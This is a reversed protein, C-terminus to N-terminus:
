RSMCEKMFRNRKVFQIGFKKTQAEKRCETRRPVTGPHTVKGSAQASMETRDHARPSSLSIVVSLAVAVIFFILLKM